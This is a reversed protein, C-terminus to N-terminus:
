IILIISSLSIISISLLTIISERGLLGTSSYFDFVLVEFRTLKLAFEGFLEDGFLEGSLVGVFFLLILLYM